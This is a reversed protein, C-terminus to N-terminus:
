LTLVFPISLTYTESIPQGDIMAPIFHWQIVANKASEDLLPFGSSNKVEVKGATGDELVLIILVVIGQENLRRSMAPYEPKQNNKAYSASITVGTKKHVSNTSETLKVTDISEKEVKNEINVPSSTFSVAPVVEVLKRNIQEDVNLNNNNLLPSISTTAKNIMPPSSGRPVQQQLNMAHVKTHTQALMKKTVIKQSSTEKTLPQPQILEGLWTEAHKVQVTLILPKKISDITLNNQTLVSIIAIIHVLFSIAIAISINNNPM